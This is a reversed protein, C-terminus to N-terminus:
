KESDDELNGQSKSKIIKCVESIAIFTSASTSLIINYRDNWIIKAVKIMNEKEFLREVCLNINPNTDSDPLSEKIHEVFKQPKDKCSFTLKGFVLDPANEKVYCIANQQQVKDVRAFAIEYQSLLIILLVAKTLASRVTFYSFNQM